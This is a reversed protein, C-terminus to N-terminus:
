RQRNFDVVYVASDDEFLLDITGTIFTNGYLSRFPYESKRAAANRAIRGLPSDLFAEALEGGASLLAEGEAPSLRGGLGSPLAPVAGAILAEVCAHAIIGFDAPTFAPSDPAGDEGAAFRKLIRDVGVFVAAASKGSNDEDVTFSRSGAEELATERFSTPSRHNSEIIPTVIINEARMKEYYPKATELFAALGRANNPFMEGEQEGGHLPDDIYAPIPELNFFLAKNGGGEAPIHDTVAPLLLGFFTDNDIIADGEIRDGGNDKCKAAVYSKLRLSLDKGEEGGLKLSGTVYLEKEARTMAVYLLRRLEATKKRREETLSLEYFFNKRINKLGSCEPPMPPNFSVGGIGTDFVGGGSESRRGWSGCCCLFVVPFELGKSKHITMLRVAGSRELPIDLEELGGDRDRLKQISDVFAALGQGEEDAKAALHFLYDYFEGYAATQSNWETEYRYGEAHWLESVLASLTEESAKARLREFLDRGRQFREQEPEPLQALAEPSFPPPRPGGGAGNFVALCVALGPLSLGVFPSRLLEAYAAADLPYAALRLASMIDNVPGGNFFGNVDESAYPIRLLRLHKEFLHQPSHSRFLVAIDEPRYKQGGGANKEELLKQIREATFRAENELPGLAEDEEEADEPAAGKDFVCLSLRGEGAKGAELPSYAAEFLPLGEAPAFVSAYQGPPTEGRPDFESGGFLANFAGILAPASRYNIALPLDETGLDDKLKRFVSVDAGRFRYISQKEDGVFFLKGPCLEQPLPVGTDMRNPDEALLFLLEKQLENNDQFEDIMIAEFADKESKRIDPHDRLITRALGAVDAFSLVGESRKRDLYQEQLEDLLSAMSLIFGAQMCFVVLSSFPGFFSERLDKILEKAPNDKRKGRSLNIGILAGTLELSRLVAARVPHSEAGAVRDRDKLSLLFDFYARIESEEPFAAGEQTFAALLPPADPLLAEGGDAGLLTGLEGLAATIASRLRRWQTCIVAFQKTIDGSFNRSGDIASHKFLAEAFIDAAIDPPSKVSYLKEVAPHSRRAILFPLSIAEAISRCREDDNSFDPPIGYRPAAQKVISLSYSDLTQIRARVFDRVGERAREGRPGQDSAAIEGLASYIRRCMEAAAKKTFTLTLIREVRLGRDALLWAFRSALVSTKGSGAGAAIVANKECYAAAEQGPNLRPASETDAM